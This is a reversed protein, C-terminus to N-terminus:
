PNGVGVELPAASETDTLFKVYRRASESAERRTRFHGGVVEGDIKLQWRNGMLLVSIPFLRSRYYGRGVKQWDLVDRRILELKERSLSSFRHRCLFCYSHHQWFSWADHM